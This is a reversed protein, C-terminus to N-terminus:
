YKKKIGTLIKFADGSIGSMKIKKEKDTNKNEWWSSQQSGQCEFDRKSVTM